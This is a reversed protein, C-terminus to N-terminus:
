FIRINKNGKVIEEPNRCILNTGYLRKNHKLQSNDLVGKFIAEDLGYVFLPQTFNSAGFIWNEKDENAFKKIKEIREFISNSYQELVKKSFEEADIKCHISKEVKEAVFQISHDLYFSIEKIAFGNQYHLAIWHSNLCVSPHEFNLQNGYGKAFSSEQNPVSTFLRGGM